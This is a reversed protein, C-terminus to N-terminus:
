GFYCFAPDTAALPQKRPAPEHASAPEAGLDQLGQVFAESRPLRGNLVRALHRRLGASGRIATRARMLLMQAIAFDLATSLNRTPDADFLGEGEVSWANAIYIMVEAMVSGSLPVQHQEFLEAVFWVPWMLSPQWGRIGHLKGFAAEETRIRSHLFVREAGPIVPGLPCSVEPLKVEAERWPVLTTESLLNEDPAELSATDMTGLLLFNPPCPVPETLHFSPLRMLREHQLQFSLESFFGALEDSGIRELWAVFVRGANEPHSAEEIMALIKSSNLRTQAETFLATNGTRDAWWAHGLMVQNRWIDQVLMQTLNKVVLMKGSREPGALITLPKSKLAVYCNVISAPAAKVGSRAVAHILRNVMQSEIGTPSFYVAGVQSPVVVTNVSM